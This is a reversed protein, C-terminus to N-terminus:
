GGIMSMAHKESIREEKSFSHSKPKCLVAEKVAQRLAEYKENDPLDSRIIKKIDVGTDYCLCSKLYGLSTLRIRNCTDCFIGHIASIFGVSGEYGPIHYYVSPGNGHRLNDKEIGPYRNIIAPILIDHSIAKYDKGSGIPMLEIFRVDINRDRSLEILEFADKLLADNGRCGTNGPVSRDVSVANIKVRIGLSYAKDLGRIVRDLMDAGTISEYGARDLTDISINIGDIGADSLEGSYDELLVGNTTMTVEEIGSIGKLMRVLNCCGRRVLPEGGTIKIRSIGLSVAAKAALVIEEYTLIESMPLSEIDGPMCYKCRLNCKDTISVRLYDIKRCYNDVM